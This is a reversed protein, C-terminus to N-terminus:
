EKKQIVSKDTAFILLGGCLASVTAVCIQIIPPMVLITVFITVLAIIILTLKLICYDMCATAAKSKL